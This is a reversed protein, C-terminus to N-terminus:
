AEGSRARHHHAPHHALGGGALARPLRPLPARDPRLALGRLLRRRRLDGADRRLRAEGRRHLLAQVHRGERRHLSQPPRPRLRRRLRHGHHAACADHHGHQRAEDQHGSAPQHAQRLDRSRARPRAVDRAHAPVHGPELRRHARALHRALAHRGGHGPGGRGPPVQARARRGGDQLGRARRRPLGDHPAHARARLRPRGHARLLGVPARRRDEGPRDGRHRLRVPGRRHPLHAVERRQPRLQRERGEDGDHARGRRHRRDARDPRLLHVRVQRLVQAHVRGQAGPLRLRRPHALESRRRLAPAHAHRGPRPLVGGPGALDGERHLGM